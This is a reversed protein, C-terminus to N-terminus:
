ERKKEKGRNAESTNIYQTHKKIKSRKFRECVPGVQLLPPSMHKGARSPTPAFRRARLAGESLTESNRDTTAQNM